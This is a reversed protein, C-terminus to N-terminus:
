LQDLRCKSLGNTLEFSPWPPVSVWPNFSPVRFEKRDSEGRKDPRKPTGFPSPTGVYSPYCYELIFMEARSGDCDQDHSM